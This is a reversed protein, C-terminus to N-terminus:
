MSQIMVTGISTMSNGNSRFMPLFPPVSKRLRTSAEITMSIVAHTASSLGVPPWCHHVQYMTLQAAQSNMTYM